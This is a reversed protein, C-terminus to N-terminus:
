NSKDSAEHSALAQQVNIWDNVTGRPSVKMGM